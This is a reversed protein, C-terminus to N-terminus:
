LANEVVERGLLPLRDGQQGIRVSSPSDGGPGPDARILNAFEALTHNLGLLHHVPYRALNPVLLSFCRRENIGPARRARGTAARTIRLCGSGSRPCTKMPLCLWPSNGGPPSRMGPRNGM